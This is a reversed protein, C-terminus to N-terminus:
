ISFENGPFKEKLKRNILSRNGVEIATLLYSYVSAVTDCHRNHQWIKEEAAEKEEQTSLSFDLPHPMPKKDDEHKKMEKEIWKIILGREHLLFTVKEADTLKLLDLDKM